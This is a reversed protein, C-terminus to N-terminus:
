AGTGELAPLDVAAAAPLAGARVLDTAAAIDPALFRDHDLPAVCQRLRARVRELPASSTMPSHFDCGQAAALLEIGVVHAANEAM